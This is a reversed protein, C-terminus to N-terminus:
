LNALDMKKHCPICMAEYLLLDTSWPSRDGPERPGVYAWQRAPSGCSCEHSSASGRQSRLRQHVAAYSGEPNWTASGEGSPLNRDAAAIVKHPDGHRRVRAEHMACMSSKNPRECGEVSCSTYGRFALPTFPKGRRKQYYHGECLPQRGSRPPRDCFELECM